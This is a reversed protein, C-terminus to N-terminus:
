ISLDDDLGPINKFIGPTKEIIRNEYKLVGLWHKAWSKSQGAICALENVFDEETWGEPYKASLSFLADEISKEDKATIRERRRAERRDIIEAALSVKKYAVDYLKSIANKYIKRSERLANKVDLNRARMSAYALKSIHEGLGNVLGFDFGVGRLILKQLDPWNEKIDRLTLQLADMKTEFEIPQYNNLSYFLLRAFEDSLESLDTIQMNLKPIDLSVDKKHIMLPLDAFTLMSKSPHKTKTFDDLSTFLATDIATIQSSLNTEHKLLNKTPKTRTDILTKPTSSFKYILPTAHITEFVKIQIDYDIAIKIKKGLLYDPLLLSYIHFITKLTKEDLSLEHKSYIPALANGGLRGLDNPSSFLFTSFSYLHERERFKFLDDLIKNIESHSIAPKRELIFNQISIWEVDEAILFRGQIDSDPAFFDFSALYGKCFVFQTRKCIKAPVVLPISPSSVEPHPTLIFIHYEGLLSYLKHHINKFRYTIQYPAQFIFGKIEVKSGDPANFSIQEGFRKQMLYIQASKNLRALNAYEIPSMDEFSFIEKLRKKTLQLEPM